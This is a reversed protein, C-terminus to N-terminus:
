FSFKAGLQFKRSGSVLTNFIRGFTASNQIATPFGFTPTNTVNIAEARIQLNLRETFKTTKILAMDLNFSGPGRFYNRGTNGVSGAPTAVFKAREEPTLYWQLGAEDHVAGFSRSCGNCSATSQVANSANNFGSYITFPRGGQITAAGSISWGGIAYNIPNRYTLNRGLFKGQGFPLEYTFFSQVVHTRDFDSLGYNARRNNINFPTSSAQQSSGTAVVTLSPDYSRTDLSKSLTYGFQWTLGQSLRREIQAELAHYTSFDNSDIVNFGNAFQPYPLFFYNGLGALDPLSRGGQNRTAAAIALGAANGGNLDTTFTRRVFQSGTETALRRTDPAFLTNMLQSDGGSAVTRFADLFGNSGMNVQNANYAGFLNHARRGVYNVELVTRNMVERQLSLSWQHTQPMELNRDVVTISNLSFAPPQAFDSPKATPPQLAALNRLRGGPQTTTAIAIGPLNQGITSSIGFTPLRDYALRYNARISMKGNGNPDWALGLSPGFNNRDSRFFDGPVWKLTNSPAAGAAVAQDPRVIRGADNGPTMRWEWRLGVDLTLNRRLKFTDQAFFDYENYKMTLDYLKAVFKDGEAVFAKSTTGVRGLLFNISTELLPRDNAQQINSPLAYATPDVTNVTRDFTVSQTINAGGVSGRRDSHSGLRINTGFKFSHNGKFWSVNDVIQWTTLERLNGTSYDFPIQVPSNNPLSIKSADATLTPFAFAFKNLGFVLENTVRANPTTRWNLAINKPDRQTNVLCGTGPFAELGGNGSDCTTDQRGFSVRGYVSNKDNINHDIKFTTDYQKEVRSAAFTYFATNLGDGGAFNNPSRSADLMLKVTPDLGGREPDSNFINYTGISTGPVVNGSADVSAGTVGAPLNRGGIVYRFVGSKATDTFVTRNVTSTDQARLYQQNYFFFTKNKIVPGGVSWGPIHQVFQTRKINQLNNQWESANLRPTRYFWFATGHLENTGSRTVMAVQGGSNRGYEATANGTITKFEALADPNPRIATFNSGGASTENADIGDITFNWARDRAGNVHIGGGTNGGNVVGPQRLVLDLPNRGRTGVIPLNRITEGTLVNGLNGSTSTAVIEAAAEVEVTDTLSGVQLAANLTMPQGISLQNGKGSFRRFGNAEVSVTYSGPQMAEFVYAGAETTTTTFSTNTSELTAQVRANPVASGSPDVVTGVIRSTTGQGWSVGAILCLALIYGWGNKM